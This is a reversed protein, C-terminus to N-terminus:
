VAIGTPEVQAPYPVFPLVALKLAEWAAFGHIASSGIPAPPAYNARLVPSPLDPPCTGDSEPDCSAATRPLKPKARQITLYLDLTAPERAANGSPPVTPENLWSKVLQRGATPALQSFSGASPGSDLTDLVFDLMEQTAGPQVAYYQAVTTTASDVQASDIQNVSPDAVASILARYTTRRSETLEGGSAKAATAGVLQGAVVAGALLSGRKVFERRTFPQTM